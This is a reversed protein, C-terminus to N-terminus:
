TTVRVLEDAAQQEEDRVRRERERFLGAPLCNLDLAHLPSRTCIVRNIVRKRRSLTWEDNTQKKKAIRLM